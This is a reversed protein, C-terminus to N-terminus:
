GNTINRILSLPIPNPVLIEYKEAQKLREQIAPDSWDTRTYLVQFDIIDRAQELTYLTVGSKNSVDATFRVGTYNLVSPHIQLFISDVIRGDQRAVYEMPHNSRFCLHIYNHLGRTKDADFSWQNGGAAPIAVGKGDLEAKPFLGGCNQISPLNRRDTFHYLLPIQLLPDSQSM